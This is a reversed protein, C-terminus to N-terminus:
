SLIAKVIDAIVVILDKMFALPSMIELTDQFYTLRVRRQEGLEILITEFDQWTLNNITVSSGPALQISKLPITVSM